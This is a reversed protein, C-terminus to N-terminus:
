AAGPPTMLARTAAAVDEQRMLSEGVLLARAGARQLHRADEATFIGSEGVLFRGSGVHPALREFTELSTEFTRLNRHGGADAEAGRALAVHAKSEDLICM